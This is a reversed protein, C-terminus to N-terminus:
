VVGLPRPQLTAVHAWAEDMSEVFVDTAPLLGAHEIDEAGHRLLRATQMQTVFRKPRVSIFTDCCGQRAIAVGVGSLIEQVNTPQFFSDTWDHIVTMRSPAAVALWRLVAACYREADDETMLTSPSSIELVRQTPYWSVLSEVNM